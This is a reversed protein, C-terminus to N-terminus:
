FDKFINVFDSSNKVKFLSQRLEPNKIVLSIKALIQLYEKHSHAPGGILFVFKVPKNDIAGWDVEKKLSAGIIFFDKVGEVKAHPIAIGLGIGTSMISEREWIAEKFKECDEVMKIDCVKDLIKDLVDKKDKGDLILFWEEKLYNSIKM